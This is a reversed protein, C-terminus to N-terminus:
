KETMAGSDSTLEKPCSGGHTQQMWSKDHCTSLLGPGTGDRSSHSGRGKGRAVQHSGLQLRASQSILNWSDQSLLLM